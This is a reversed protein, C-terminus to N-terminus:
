SSPCGDEIYKFNGSNYKICGSFGNGDAETLEKETAGVEGLQTLKIYGSKSMSNKHEDYYLRAYTELMGIKANNEKNKNREIVASISSVAIVSISLLIVVVAVIGIAIINWIEM